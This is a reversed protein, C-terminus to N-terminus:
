ATGPPSLPSRVAVQPPLTKKGDEMSQALERQLQQLQLDIDSASQHVSKQIEVTQTQVSNRLDRLEDLAMDRYIDAKLQGTYRQARGWMHGMTRAVKPLREPGIVLLAVVLITILEIFGIDFM